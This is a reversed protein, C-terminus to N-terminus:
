SGPYSGRAHASAKRGEKFSKHAKLLWRAGVTVAFRTFYSASHEWAPVPWVFPGRLSKTVLLTFDSNRLDVLSRLYVCFASGRFRKQKTIATADRMERDRLKEWRIRAAVRLATFRSVDNNEELWDAYVGVALRNEPIVEINAALLPNTIM